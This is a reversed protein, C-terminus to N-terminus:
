TDIRFPIFVPSENGNHNFKFITGGDDKLLTVALRIKEGKKIIKQTLPLEIVHDLVSTNNIEGSTIESSLDETSSDVLVKKLQVSFTDLGTDVSIFVKGVFYATGKVTRPLNFVSTDFNLTTQTTTSSQNGGTGSTSNFTLPSLFHNLGGSNRSTKPFFTEFGLGSAIDQHEFTEIIERKPPFSSPFPPM